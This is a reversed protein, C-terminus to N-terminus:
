DIKFYEAAEDKLAFIASQTIITEQAQLQEVLNNAFGIAEANHPAGAVAVNLMNLLEEKAIVLKAWSQNSVYIQQSMNFDFESRIIESLEGYYQLTTKGGPSVRGLLNHPSVRELFLICREYAAMKMPMITKLVENKNSGSVQKKDEKNQQDIWLKSAGLM